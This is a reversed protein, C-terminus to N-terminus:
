LTTYVYCSGSPCFICRLYLKRVCCRPIRETFGDAILCVGNFLLLVKFIYETMNVSQKAIRWFHNCITLCDIFYRIMAEAQRHREEM